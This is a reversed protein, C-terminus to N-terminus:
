PISVPNDPTNIFEEGKNRKPSPKVIVTKNEPLRENPRQAGPVIKFPVDAVVPGSRIRDVRSERYEHSSVNLTYHGQQQPELEHPIVDVVRKESGGDTRRKLEIEVTLNTLKSPSINLITGGIVAQSGKIMADDVFVQVQPPPSPKQLQSLSAEEDRLQKAHRWRLFAYGTMIAATVGLACLIAVSRTFLSRRESDDITSFEGSSTEKFRSM